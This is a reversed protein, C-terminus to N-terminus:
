EGAEQYAPRDFNARMLRETRKFEDITERDVPDSVDLGRAKFWRKIEVIDDVLESMVQKRRELDTSAM